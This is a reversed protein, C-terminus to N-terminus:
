HRRISDILTKGVWVFIFFVAIPVLVRNVILNVIGMIVGTVALFVLIGLTLLARQWTRTCSDWLERWNGRPQPNHPHHGAGM